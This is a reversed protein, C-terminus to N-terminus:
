RFARNPCDQGRKALNQRLNRAYNTFTAPFAGDGTGFAVVGLVRPTPTGATPAAFAPPLSRCVVRLAASNDRRPGVYHDRPACRLGPPTRAPPRGPCSTGACWLRGFSAVASPAPVALAPVAAAPCAVRAPARGPGAQGLERPGSPAPQALGAGLRACRAGAPRSRRDGVRRLAAVRLSPVVAVARTNWSRRRTRLEERVPRLGRTQHKGFRLSWLGFPPILARSLDSSGAVSLQRSVHLM